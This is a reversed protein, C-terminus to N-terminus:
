PDVWEFFCHLGVRGQRASLQKDLFSEQPTTLVNIVLRTTRM